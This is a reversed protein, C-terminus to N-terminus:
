TVRRDKSAQIDLCQTYTCPPPQNHSPSADAINRPQNQEAPFNSLCCVSAKILMDSSSHAGRQQSLSQSNHWRSRLTASDRRQKTQCTPEVAPGGAQRDAVNAVSSSGELILRGTYKSHSLHKRNKLRASDTKTWKELVMDRFRVLLGENEVKWLETRNGEKVGECRKNRKWAAMRERGRRFAWYMEQIVRCGDARIEGGGGRDKWRM